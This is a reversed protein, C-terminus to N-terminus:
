EPHQAIKVATDILESFAPDDALDRISCRGALVANAISAVSSGAHDDAIRTLNARLRVASNQDGTFAEFPELDPDV